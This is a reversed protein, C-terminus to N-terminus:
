VIFLIILIIFLYVIRYFSNFRGLCDCLSMSGGFYAVVDPLYLCLNDTNNKKKECQVFNKSNYTYQYFCCATTNFCDLSISGNNKMELCTSSNYAWKIATTTTNDTTVVTDNANIVNPINTIISTNTNNTSNTDNSTNVVTSNIIHIISFLIELTFIIKM